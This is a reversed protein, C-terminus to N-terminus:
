LFMNLAPMLSLLKVAIITLEAIEAGCSKETVSVFHKLFLGLLWIVGLAWWDVGRNHGSQRLTEPAFYDQERLKM